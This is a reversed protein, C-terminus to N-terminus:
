QISTPPTVYMRRPINVKSAKRLSLRTCNGRQRRGCLRRKWCSGSWSRWVLWTLAGPLAPSLVFSLSLCCFFIEISSHLPSGDPFVIALERSNAHTHIPACNSLEQMVRGHTLQVLPTETPRHAHVEVSPKRVATSFNPTSPYSVESMARNDNSNMNNHVELESFPPMDGPRASGPNPSIRALQEPHQQYMTQRATSASRATPKGAAVNAKRGEAGGGTQQLISNLVPNHSTDINMKRLTKTYQPSYKHSESNIDHVVTVGLASTRLQPQANALFARQHQLRQLLEM